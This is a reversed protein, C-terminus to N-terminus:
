GNGAIYEQSSWECYDTYFMGMLIYQVGHTCTVFIFLVHMSRKKWICSYLFQLWQVISDRLNKEICFFFDKIQGHGMNWM